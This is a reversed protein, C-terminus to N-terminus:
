RVKSAPRPPTRDILNIVTIEPRQTDSYVNTIEFVSNRDLLWENEDYEASFCDIAKGNLTQIEFRVPGFKRGRTPWDPDASTSTYAPFVIKEGIVYSKLEENSLSTYRYVLGSRSPLRLLASSIMSTIPKIQSIENPNSKRLVHNIKKYGYATYFSLSVKEDETLKSQIAKCELSSNYDRKVTALHYDYKFANDTPSRDLNLENAHVRFWAKFKSEAGFAVNTLLLGICIHILKFNLKQIFRNKRM